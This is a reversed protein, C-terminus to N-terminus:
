QRLALNLVWLSRGNSQRRQDGNNDSAALGDMRHLQCGLACAMRKARTEVLELFPSTDWDCHDHEITIKTGLISISPLGTCTNNLALALLDRLLIDLGKGDVDIKEAGERAHFIVVGPGDPKANTRLWDANGGSDPDLLEDLHESAIHSCSRICDVVDTLARKPQDYEWTVVAQTQRANWNISRLRQQAALLRKKGLETADSEAAKLLDLVATLDVMDRFLYDATTVVAGRTASDIDQLLLQELESSNYVPIRRLRMLRMGPAHDTSANPALALLFDDRHELAVHRDDAKMSKAIENEDRTWRDDQWCRDGMLVPPIDTEDATASKHRSDARTYFARGTEMTDLYKKWFERDTLSLIASAIFCKCCLALAMGISDLMDVYPHSQVNAIPEFVQVGAYVFAVARVFQEHRISGLVRAFLCLAGVPGAVRLGETAFYLWSSRSPAGYNVFCWGGLVFASATPAAIAVWRLWHDLRNKTARERVALRDAAEALFYAFGITTLPLIFLEFWSLPSETGAAAPETTPRLYSVVRLSYEVLFTVLWAAFFWFWDAKIKSKRLQRSKWVTAAVFFGVVAWNLCAIATKGNSFSDLIASIDGSMDSTELLYRIPLTVAPFAILRCTPLYSTLSNVSASLARPACPGARM